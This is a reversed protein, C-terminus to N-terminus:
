IWSVPFQFGSDPVPFNPFWFDSDPIRFDFFVLEEFERFRKQM